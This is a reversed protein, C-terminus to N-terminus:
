DAKKGDNMDEKNEEAPPQDPYALVCAIQSTDLYRVFRDGDDFAIKGISGARNKVLELDKTSVTIETGSKLIIVAKM